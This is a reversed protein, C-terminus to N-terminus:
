ITMLRQERWFRVNIISNLHPKLRWLTQRVRADFNSAGELSQFNMVSMVRFRVADRTATGFIEGLAFRCDLQRAPVNSGPTVERYPFDRLTDRPWLPVFTIPKIIALKATYISCESLSLM